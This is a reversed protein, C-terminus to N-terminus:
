WQFSCWIFADLTLTSFGTTTVYLLYEWSSLQSYRKYTRNPRILMDLVDLSDDQATVSLQRAFSVLTATRRQESLSAINQASAEDCCVTGSSQDSQCPCEGPRAPWRGVSASAHPSGFGPGPRACERSFTDSSPTRSEHLPIRWRACPAGRSRNTTRSLLGRKITAM